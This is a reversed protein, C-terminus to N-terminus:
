DPEADRARRVGLGGKVQTEVDLGEDCVPASVVAEKGCHRVLCVQVRGLKGAAPVAKKHAVASPDDTEDSDQFWLFPATRVIV